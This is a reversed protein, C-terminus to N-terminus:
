SNQLSYKEVVEKKTLTPLLVLLQEKLISLYAVLKEQSISELDLSDINKKLKRFILFKKYIPFKAYWRYPSKYYHYDQKELPKIFFGGRIYYLRSYSSKDPTLVFLVEENEYYFSNAMKKFGLEILLTALKSKFDVTEIQM